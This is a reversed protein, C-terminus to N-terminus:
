SLLDAQLAPILLQMLQELGQRDLDTPIHRIISRSLQTPSIGLEKAFFDLTAGSFAYAERILDDAVDPDLRMAFADKWTLRTTKELSADLTGSINLTSTHSTRGSKETVGSSNRATEASYESSQASAEGTPM